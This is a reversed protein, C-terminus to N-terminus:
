ENKINRKQLFNKLIKKFILKIYNIIYIFILSFIIFLFREAIVIPILKIYQNKSLFGNLYGYIVTGCSQSIWTSLFIIDFNTYKKNFTIIIYLICILWPITYIITNKLIITFITFLILFISITFIKIKYIYKDHKLINYFLIHILGPTKYLFNKSIIQWIIYLKGIISINFIIPICTHYLTLSSSFSGSIFNIKILSLIKFLFLFIISKLLNFLIILYMQYIKNKM